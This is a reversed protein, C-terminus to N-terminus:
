KRRGEIIIPELINRAADNITNVTQNHWYWTSDSRLIFTLLGGGHLFLLIVLTALYPKAQPLKRLVHSFAYGMLVAFLLLVPLLYRGNIAVARGTYGYAAFGDLWLILVYFSVLTMLFALLPRGRFIRRSYVLVALVGTVGLAIATTHPVPLERYNMYWANKGNVAFFLRHYMGKLWSGMYSVPSAQFEKPKEKAYSHDRVWPGYASCQKVTMVNGCDPVPRGYEVVNVVYRQAFLGLMVLAVGVLAIRANRSLRLFDNRAISGIKKYKGRFSLVAYILLFGVTAAAFPLAAYKIVSMLLCVVLLLILAKTDIRRQKFSDILRFALLCMAPVLVMLSNDYNIHAALQPVIPILVFVALATNVLAPSSKVRLMVKRFLLLGWVFIAVNLLRLIIIIATEGNTFLTLLRYPFSLVYHYFYSPDRFIAGFQDAGPPQSTLFPSWQEAYIKIVGLHFEEDFAMPYLASFVFWLAELIFFGLVIRFFLRSGLFTTLSHTLRNM